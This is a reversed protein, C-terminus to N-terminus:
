RPQWKRGVTLTRLLDAASRGDPPVPLDSNLDCLPRLVFEREGMRPHPVILDPGEHVEGGFILLDLDIVRPGWRVTRRRGLRDEIEELLSFLDRACLDVEIEVVGNLYPGQPPGGAPDTQYLPSRRLRRVGAARAMTRLAADILGERPGQNSGLGVYAVTSM